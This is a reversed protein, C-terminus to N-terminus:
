LSRETPQPLIDEGYIRCDCETLSLAICQMLIQCTLVCSYVYILLSHVNLGDTQMYFLRIIQKGFYAPAFELFMQLEVKSIVKLIFREDLSKAFSAGSKGGSASWRESMALSRVFNDNFSLGAAAEPVAGTAAVGGAESRAPPSGADKLYCARVAEFQTAWYVQCQFKCLINGRDDMDDFRVRIYSKNQSIM